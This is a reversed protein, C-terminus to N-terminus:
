RPPETPEDHDAGALARMVLAMVDEAGEYVDLVLDPVVVPVPWAEADLVARLKVWDKATTVLADCGGSWGTSPASCPASSTRDIRRCVCASIAPEWM